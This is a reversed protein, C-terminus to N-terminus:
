FEDPDGKPTLDPLSGFDVSLTVNAMAPAEKEPTSGNEEGQKLRKLQELDLARQKANAASTREYNKRKVEHRQQDVQRRTFQDWMTEFRRDVPMYHGIEASMSCWAKYRRVNTQIWIYSTDEPDRRAEIIKEDDSKKSLAANTYNRGCFRYGRTREYSTSDTKVCTNFLFEEDAVVPKGSNPAIQQLHDFREHSSYSAQIPNEPLTVYLMESIEAETTSFQMRATKRSKFKGDVSRGAKDPKTSGIMKHSISENIQSQVTECQSNFRSGGTPVTLISIGYIGCFERLGSKLDTGRDIVISHPVQEHNRVYNRMLIMPGDRRAPGFVFAHAMVLGSAEDRGCYLLPCQPEPGDDEQSFTRHDIKTADIHLVSHVALATGSRYRADSRAKNAQYLRKGGVALDRAERSTQRVRSVLAKRGPTHVGASRCEAGLAEHLDSITPAVGTLWQTKIVQRVVEDQVTTLRSQRNGSRSFSTITEDLPNRGEARALAVSTAQSRRWRPIPEGRRILGDLEALIKKGRAVDTASALSVSERADLYLDVVNAAFEADISRAQEDSLSLYFNRTDTIPVNWIPGFVLRDGLLGAAASANFWPISAMLDDISRPGQSLQNRVQSLGENRILSLEENWNHLVFQMNRHYRSINDPSAWVRFKIGHSAAWSEYATNTYVGSEETWEQPKKQVLRELASVSKCEILEVSARRIVFFDINANSVHNGRRVGRCTVQCVYAVVEPDLELEFACTQEVTHSELCRIDSCKKSYFDVIVNDLAHVGVKRGAGQCYLELIFARVEIALDLTRLHNRLEELTM